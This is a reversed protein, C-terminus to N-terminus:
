VQKNKNSFARLLEGYIKEVLDLKTAVFRVFKKDEQLGMQKCEFDLQASVKDLEEQM